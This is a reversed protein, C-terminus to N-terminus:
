AAPSLTVRRFLGAIGIVLVVALAHMALDILTVDFPHFFQLVFAALAAVGLAGCMAVRLPLLPRARRLVAFLLLGTPVSVMVIFRFCSASEGLRAGAPGLGLGAARVHAGLPSDPATQRRM